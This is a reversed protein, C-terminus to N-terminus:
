SDSIGFPLVPASHPPLQEATDAKGPDDAVQAENLADLRHTLDDVEGREKGVENEDREHYSTLEIYM